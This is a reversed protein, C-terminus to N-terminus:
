GSFSINKNNKSKYFLIWFIIIAILQMGMSFAVLLPISFDYLYGLVVSGLFWFVGFGANFVGFATGRKYAPILEAVAAKLISEQAGMGIGWIIMGTIAWKLGGLFVMPAFFLSIFTIYIMIKMGWKDFLKGLLLAAIGEAAMAVSYLIPISADSMLNIKKFHYAILLFDVYGAAIFIVALLYLWFLKPFGKTEIVTNEIELDQPKPYQERAFLLVMLAIVGPIFLILFAEHYSQNKYFLVASVLLPGITAGAQDMAEHLGFGWGRGMEKAGYSLMADRPPTRIGKGIRETIILIIALQWYGAFALLPGSFLNFLYGIITITWYKKTRDSFYGSVIRIGYGALEGFGAVWGVTAGSVGLISLYPGSISRAAEYTMDSFLSVCGLLVVFRIAKSTKKNAPM